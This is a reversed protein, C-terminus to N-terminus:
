EERSKYNEFCKKFEKRMNPDFYVTNEICVNNEIDIMFYSEIATNDFFKEDIANIQNDCLSAVKLSKHISFSDSHIVTLKNNRLYLSKLNILSSFINKPLDSIENGNLSLYTLTSLGDFLEPNLTQIKNYGLYLTDLNPLSKFINSPLSTIKNSDLDITQLLEMNSFFKEPLTTFENNNMRIFYLSLDDSYFSEPVEKMDTSNITVKALNQCKKFVNNDVLKVNNFILHKVSPFSDCIELESNPFEVSGIKKGNYEVHSVNEPKFDQINENQEDIIRCFHRDDNSQYMFHYNDEPFECKFGYIIQLNILYFLFILKLVRFYFM